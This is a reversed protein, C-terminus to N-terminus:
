VTYTFTGRIRYGNVWVTANNYLAAFAIIGGLSSYQGMLATLGVDRFAGTNSDTGQSFPLTFQLQGTATGVNVITVEFTVSVLRGIKTYVAANVTVTTPTGSSATITPTWTGEEYDDLTNANTSANQASPFVIGTGNANSAANQLSFAGNTNLFAGITAGSTKFCISDQSQIRCSAGSSFNDTGFQAHNLAGVNIDVQGGWAGQLTLTSRNNNANPSATGVGVNGAYDVVFADTNWNNNSNRTSIRFDGGYGSGGGSGVARFRVRSNSGVSYNSFLNIYNENGNLSVDSNFTAAGAVTLPGAIYDGPTQINWSM